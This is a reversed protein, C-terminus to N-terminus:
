LPGMPPSTDHFNLHSGAGESELLSKRLQSIGERMKEPTFLEAFLRSEALAFFQQSDTRPAPFFQETLEEITRVFIPRSPLERFLEGRDDILTLTKSVWSQRLLLIFSVEGNRSGTRTQGQQMKKKQEEHEPMLSLEESM